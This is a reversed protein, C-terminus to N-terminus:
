QSLSSADDKETELASVAELLDAQLTPQHKEVQRYHRLLDLSPPGIDLPPNYEAYLVCVNERIKKVETWEIPRSPLQQRIHYWVALRLWIPPPGDWATDLANEKFTGPTLHEPNVCQRPCGYAHRLILGPPIKGRTSEYVARHAPWKKGKISVAGYDAQHM